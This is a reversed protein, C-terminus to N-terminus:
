RRRPSLVVVDMDEPFQRVPSLTFGERPPTIERPRRPQGSAQNGFFVQRAHDQQLAHIAVVSRAVDGVRQFGAPATMATSGVYQQRFDPATMEAKRRVSLTQNVRLLRQVDRMSDSDQQQGEATLVLNVTPLKLEEMRVIQEELSRANMRLLTNKEELRFAARRLRSVHDAHKEDAAADPNEEDLRELLRKLRELERTQDHLRTNVKHLKRSRSAIKNSIDSVQRKATRLTIREM